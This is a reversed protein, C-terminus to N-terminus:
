QMSRERRNTEDFAQRRVQRMLGAIQQSGIDPRATLQLAREDHSLKRVSGTPQGAQYPSSPLQDPSVYGDASVYADGGMIALLRRSRGLSTKGTRQPPHCSLRGLPPGYVACSLYLLVWSAVPDQGHAARVLGFGRADAFALSATEEPKFPPPAYM